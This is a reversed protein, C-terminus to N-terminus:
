SRKLEAIAARADDIGTFAQGAQVSAELNRLADARRGAKYQAMGLMYKMQAAQPVEDAARQLL